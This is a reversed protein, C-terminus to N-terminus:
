NVDYLDGHAQKQEETPEIKLRGQTAAVMMERLLDTYPRKLKFKCYHKFEQLDKFKARFGVTTDLNSDEAM